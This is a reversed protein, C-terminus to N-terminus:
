AAKEVSLVWAAVDDRPVIDIVRWTTGGHVLTNGKAPRQPLAAQLVEFSIHRVTAGAGQFPEGPVDSKIAAITAGVLGAGTYVVAEGFAAHIAAIEDAHQTV